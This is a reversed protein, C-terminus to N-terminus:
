LLCWGGDVPIVHGTVYSAADSALFVVPGVLEEPRGKRGLPTAAEVQAIEEPDEYRGESGRMHTTMYGPAVVNVRIDHPGWEVALHRATHDLGAKAAGYAALREFVVLSSTSSTFVISGGRGQAIMRRGAAQACAFASTLNIGIMENWAAADIEEAKQARGIGHNVVMVDLGGFADVATDILREVDAPKQADFVVDVVEHGEARLENAADRVIDATRGCIVVRAGAEALGRAMARGLGRGSGTVIASKGTLDFLQATRHMM